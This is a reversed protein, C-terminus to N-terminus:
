PRSSILTQNWIKYDYWHNYNINVWQPRTVCIHTLLNVMLPESLPKDGPQRWAMIQTQTSEAEIISTYNYLVLLSLQVISTGHFIMSVQHFEYLDKIKHTSDPSLTLIFINNEWYQSGMIFILHDWLVSLDSCFHGVNQCVNELANEQWFINM